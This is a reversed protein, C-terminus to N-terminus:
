KPGRGRRHHLESNPHDTPPGLGRGGQARRPPPPNPPHAHTQSPHFIKDNQILTKQLMEPECAFNELNSCKHCFKRELFVLREGTKPHFKLIFADNQFFLLFARTKVWPERIKCTKPPKPPKKLANGVTKPQSKLRFFNLFKPWTPRVHHPPGFHPPTFSTALPDTPSHEASGPSSGGGM